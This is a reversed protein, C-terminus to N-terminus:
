NLKNGCSSCYNDTTCVAEDCIECNVLRKLVKHLTTRKSSVLMDNPDIRFEGKELDLGLYATKVDSSARSRISPESLTLKVEVHEAEIGHVDKTYSVAENVIRQLEELNM